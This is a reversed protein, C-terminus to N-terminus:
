SYWSEAFQCLSRIFIINANIFKHKKQNMANFIVEELDSILIHYLRDYENVIKDYLAKGLVNYLYIQCEAHTSNYISVVKDFDGCAFADEEFISKCVHAYKTCIGVIVNRLLEDKILPGHYAITDFLKNLLKADETEIQMENKISMIDDAINKTYEELKDVKDAIEDLENKYKKNFEEDKKEIKRNSLRTLVGAIVAGFALIMMVVAEQIMNENIIM